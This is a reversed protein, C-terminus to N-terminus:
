QAAIAVRLAGLADIAADIQAPAAHRPRSRFPELAQRVRRNLDDLRRVTEPRRARVVAAGLEPLTRDYAAILGQGRAPPLAPVRVIVPEIKTVVIREPAAPLPLPRPPTTACGAVLCAVAFSRM